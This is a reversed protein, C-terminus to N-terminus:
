KLHILYTHLIRRGINSHINVKRRTNPNVIKNYM